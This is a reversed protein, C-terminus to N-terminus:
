QFVYVCGKRDVSVVMGSVGELVAIDTVSDLHARLLSKQTRAIATVRSVRGKSGAKEKANPDSVVREANLLVGSTPHSTGFRPQPEEASLGSVVISTEVRSMDWFRVKRDVGGTLLFGYKSEREDSPHDVGIALARLSNDKPPVSSVNILQSEPIPIPSYLKAIEKAQDAASIITSNSTARFIERCVFKELDWVTIEPYSTGGAVCVWRGRGKFPHM